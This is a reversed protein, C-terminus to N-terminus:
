AGRGTLMRLTADRLLPAIQEAPIGPDHDAVSNMLGFAAHVLVRAQADTLDDRRDAVVHVFEEAYLRQVRRLRGRTADPLNHSEQAYVKILNREALAFGVHSAILRELVTSSGSGSTGDPEASAEVDPNPDPNPDPDPDPDVIARARDLLQETVQGFLGVLVASKNAFHRYVAAGTVGAAAGIDDMGVAHFGREAFLAAAQTLILARRRRGHASGTPPRSHDAELSTM